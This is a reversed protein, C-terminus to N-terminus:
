RGRGGWQSRAFWSHTDIKGRDLILIEIIDDVTVIWLIIGEKDVVPVALLGYKNIVEAVHQQEDEVQV